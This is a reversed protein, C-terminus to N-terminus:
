GAMKIIFFIHMGFVSCVGAVVSVICLFYLSVLLTRKIAKCHVYDEIVSQMGLAGHYLFAAIFLISAILNFPSMAFAPIRYLPAQLLLIASVVFWMTLPLLAIATIRQMIHHKTGCKASSQVKSAGSNFESM